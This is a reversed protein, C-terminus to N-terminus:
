EVQVWGGGIIASVNNNYMDSCQTAPLFYKGGYAANLLVIYKKTEGRRLDFFFNVRDDRFDIYNANDSKLEAGLDFVRTNIIEWGSPFIQSLALNELDGFKGPNTVRIEVYFDTGHKINKIDLISGDMRKYQISLNINKEESIISGLEPIGSTTITVFVDTNSTNDLELKTGDDVLLEKEFIPKVPIIEDSWSDWKYKFSYADNKDNNSTYLSIAALSFATTQTSMWRDSRLASAVELVIPIADNDNILYLPEVMMAKDRTESGYSWRWYYRVPEVYTAGEILKSAVSKQGILAYAAALQYKAIFHLGKMERMKNMAGLNPLEALALTYLRYAQTLDNYIMRNSSYEPYWNDAQRKQYKIWNKLMTPSLNYGKQKAKLLFHGAYSTGWNNAMSNGPWYSFGGNTVQMKSIRSIASSIHNEIRNKQKESLETMENLYLQPFAASTTQEICHYPYRILYNLRKELNIQPMSSVSFSLEFSGKVGKFEPKHDLTKGKELLLNKVQYTRPNPNRIDIEVDYYANEDGSSVEVKVKGIGEGENVYADFYITKEGLETFKINQESVNVSFNDNTILKVSVNKIKEDMSFVSVPLKIQETPALVRPMTALVMLPQKVPVIASTNGFAGDNGAVLMFKVSGVYNTMLVNHTLTEGAQLTFPGVYTVVPKFRNAKKKSPKDDDESFGGGIAFTNALSGKFATIVYDFMDWTQMKLAQKAYFLKHPDPTKFKTIDLLGEDVIAITYTMKRSNKESVVFSFETNPRIEKPLTLVPNLVTAPDEVMIPIVGYLRAPLDNENIGFPQIVSITAYINPAMDADTIFEILSEEPKSNQWWTRLIKNNSELSVLINSNGPSPFSIRVTDGVLYKEKDSTLSLQSADGPASRNNRSYWSPWDMYFKSGCSHGSEPDLVKVYYYGWMPYTIEFDFYGEGDKTNIRQSSVLDSYRSSMYRPSYGDGYGYWWSWNTKYIEVELNNVSIPLGDKDVTAVKFRHLKDVEMYSSGNDNKPLQLGVYTSFPSYIMNDQSISFDGGKEFVRTLFTVKLKGPARKSPPLVINFDLEGNKNLDKDLVTVEDPAFYRGIDNFSYDPFKDFTTKSPRLTANIETKLGSAIGGHLWNVKISAKNNGSILQKTKFDLLIKLRNPKLNEIRISKTFQSGGVKFEARWVGTLDDSTTVPKFSYFGNISTSLTKEVMLKGKPNYLRLTSPHKEPLKGNIDMAILTLFLTDGPRWVGRDGYIFGSIGNSPMVGKTDFKSYSLSNGGKIKVYAFEKNRQAVVMWPDDIIGLQAIGNSNTTVIKIPQQQYDFATITLGGIVDATLLDTAFVTYGSQKDGKVILGINSALVNKAVFREYYYYSNSCPNDQYGWRFYEPYYYEDDYYDHHGYNYGNKEDAIEKDDCVYLSYEKKFKIQIRYIGQENERIMKSIDVAYNLWSGDNTSALLKLDLQEKHIIQSVRVLERKGDLNNVQLFQKVNEVFIKHIIIDVKSLNVVSFNITWNDNGPLVVGDDIFKVAPPIQGFHINKLLDNKLGKGKSNKLEKKIAVVIDGTQHSTPYILIKNAEIDYKVDMNETIYVIGNLNMTPNIPDSFTLEIYQSPTNIVKASIFKFVNAPPVPVEEIGVDDSGIEKGDWSIIVISQTEKREINEIRFEKFDVKDSILPTIELKRGDQEAFLLKEINKDGIPESSIIRVDLFNYKADKGKYSQLEDRKFTLNQPFVRINFKFIKDQNRDMKFLKDLFVKVNYLQNFELPKDPQFILSSKGNWYVKGDVSPSFKFIEEDIIDGGDVILEIDASFNIQISSTSGVYEDTVQNVYAKPLIRSSTTEEEMSPTNDVCSIISLFILLLSLNKLVTSNVPKRM